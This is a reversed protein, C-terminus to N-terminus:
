LDPEKEERHSVEMSVLRAILIAPFLQGTLAELMALSRAMPHVATIDGYGVTTLSVFSFYVLKSMLTADDATSPLNFARPDVQMILMYCGSWIVGLLLYAAVAGQIRHITIKGESFVRKLIVWSLMVLFVIWLSVGLITLRESPAYLRIWGIVATGVAALTGVAMAARTKAVVVVGTILILSFVLQLTIGVFLGRNGLPYLVFVILLLLGLLFSLYWDTRWLRAAIRIPM